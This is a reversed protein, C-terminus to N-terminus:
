RGEGPNIPHTKTAGLGAGCRSFYLAHFWCLANGLLTLIQHRIDPLEFLSEAIYAQVFETQGTTADDAVGVLFGKLACERPQLLPPTDAILLGIM